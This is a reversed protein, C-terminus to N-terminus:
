LLGEMTNRRLRINLQKVATCFMQMCHINDVNNSVEGKSTAKLFMHLLNKELKLM